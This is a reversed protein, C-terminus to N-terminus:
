LFFTENLAYLVQKKRRGIARILGCSELAMFDKRATEYVVHENREHDRISVRRGTQKLCNRILRAQRENVVISKEALRDELRKTAFETALRSRVGEIAESVVECSFLVFPTLDGEDESRKIAEYYRGRHKHIASSISLYRFSDYGHRLVHHYFLARATRGNGDFFPHVYVFYFHLVSARIIPHLFDFESRDNLWLELFRLYGPVLEPPPAEYIVQDTAHDRVAVRGDRVRGASDPHSDLAEETIIKHLECMLDNTYPRSRDRLIWQMARYNNLVMREDKTRPARQEKALKAAIAFTTVAGEIQSSRLAESILTEAVIQMRVSGEVDSFMSDAGKTDIRHLLEQMKATISLRFLKGDQDALPVTPAARRQTEIQQWTDEFSLDEPARHRMEERTWYEYQAKAVFARADLARQIHSSVDGSM